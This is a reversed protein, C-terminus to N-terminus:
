VCTLGNTHSLSMKLFFCKKEVDYFRMTTSHKESIAADASCFFREWCKYLLHLFGALKLVLM